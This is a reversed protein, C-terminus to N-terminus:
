IGLQVCSARITSEISVYGSGSISKGLHDKHAAVSVGEGAQFSSMDCNNAPLCTVTEIPISDEVVWASLLDGAKKTCTVGVKSYFDNGDSIVGSDM